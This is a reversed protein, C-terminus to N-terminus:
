WQRVSSVDVAPAPIAALGHAYSAPVRASCAWQSRVPKGATTSWSTSWGPTYRRVGRRGARGVTLMTIGVAPVTRSTPPVGVRSMVWQRRPM